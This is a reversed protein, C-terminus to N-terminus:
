AAEKIRDFEEHTLKLTVPKKWWTPYQLSRWKLTIWSPIQINDQRRDIAVLPLSRTENAQLIFEAPTGAAAAVFAEVSHDKWIHFLDTTAEISVVHVSHRGPNHVVLYMYVNAGYRKPWIQMTPSDRLIWNIANGILSLLPGALSYFPM